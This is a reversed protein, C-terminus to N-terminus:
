RGYSSANTNKQCTKQVIMKLSRTKVLLERLEVLFYKINNYQGCSFIETLERQDASYLHYGMIKANNWKQDIVQEYRREKFIPRLKKRHEAITKKKLDLKQTRSLKPNKYHKELKIKLAQVWRRLTVRDALRGRYLEREKSRKTKKMFKHALHEGVFEAINENLRVGGPIWITRHTLEHFILEALDGLPRKLMSAFLPDEFYGLSSFALVRSKAVDYGQNLYLDAQTNRTREDFYGIYPVSGVLPFWWTKM